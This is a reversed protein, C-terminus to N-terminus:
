PVGTVFVGHADALAIVEARNAVLTAGSEIAIGAIGKAACGRLTDPGIAPLDLARDQQPKAMKVLVAGACGAREILADTGHRDEEGIVTGDKVIVAQGVDRRGLARAAAVGFAIDQLHADSPAHRGMPGSRALLDGMLEFAGHLRFGEAELAARIARLLADDGKFCLAWLIKPLLCLTTVDPRLAWVNPRRMKGILVIDEIGRARLAAFVVGMKEPKVMIGEHDVLTQPEAHGDLRVAFINVGRTSVSQALLDPFVGGGAVIALSKM